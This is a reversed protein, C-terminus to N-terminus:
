FKVRFKWLRDNAGGDRNRSRVRELNFQDAIEKHFARISSGYKIDSRACWDKFETFLRDTTTNTLHPLDIGEESVWTLVTSNDTIYRDLARSVATPNTFGNNKLLRTLGILARNLLYSLAEDTTIKDEIFPDFDEDASSFTANFPIFTLRSYMGQSKDAIRPIENCSFILKAYSRLTFPNQGKREVTVSEGTFLKKLIGTDLIDKRNIDDGINVLKNELEATKFRDGLQELEVTSCNDAGIFKKLLNLITSKGNSGGGYLIFGKRFRCNRMLMYGCMEEFLEIAQTDGCFVKNLCKDLDASYADPKYKVPVRCFELADPSYPIPKNTRLDYRTNALNIIYEDIHVSDPDIYTQVKLYKLVETRRAASIRPYLWIMKQEIAVNARKYYGDEYVYLTDNLCVIRMNQILDDGFINHKFAGNEDFYKSNNRQLEEESKFSEDRCITKIESPPLPQAFVFRNIIRITQRIEDRSFGKGQMHLIYDYLAQNRGDGEKMGIFSVKGYSCPKLWSPMEAIEELPYKRLWERWEGDKKIVAYCLKGWSRVDYTLGIACRCKVSNKRPEPSRFWLHVGRTTKMMLCHIDLEEVIRQVVEAESPSDFDFIVMPEPVLVGINDADEVEALPHGGDSLPEIPKKNKTLKVYRMPVSM